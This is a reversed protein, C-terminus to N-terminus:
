EWVGGEERGVAGRVHLLLVVGVCGFALAVTAMVVVELSFTVLLVGRCGPTAGEMDVGMAPYYHDTEAQLGIKKYIKPPLHLRFRQGGM